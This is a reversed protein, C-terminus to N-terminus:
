AQVRLLQELRGPDVPKTVHHTFGAESARRQDEIDLLIVDPRLEATATLAISGDHVVKVTHGGLELLTALSTAADVNDDAGYGCDEGDFTKRARPPM